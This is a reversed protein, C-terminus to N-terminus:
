VTKVQIFFISQHAVPQGIKTLGNNMNRNKQRTYVCVYGSNIYQMHSPTHTHARTHMHTHTRARTRAHIRAHPHKHTHTQTHAHTHIHTHAHTHVALCM